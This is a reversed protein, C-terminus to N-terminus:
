EGHVVKEVPLVKLALVRFFEKFIGKPGAFVHHNPEIAKLRVLLLWHMSM